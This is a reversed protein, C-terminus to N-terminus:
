KIRTVSATLYYDPVQKLTNKSNTKSAELQAEQENDYFLDEVVKPGSFSDMETIRVRWVSSPLDLKM